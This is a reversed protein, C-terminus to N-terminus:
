IKNKYKIEQVFILESQRLSVLCWGVDDHHMFRFASMGYVEEAMYGAAISIRCISYILRVKRASLHHAFRQDCYVIDGELSHRTFYEEQNADVQLLNFSRLGAM